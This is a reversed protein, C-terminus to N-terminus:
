KESLLCFCQARLEERLVPEEANSQKTAARVSRVGHMGGWVGRRGGEEEERRPRFGLSWVMSLSSSTRIRVRRGAVRHCGWM